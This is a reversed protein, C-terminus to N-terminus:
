ASGSSATQPERLFGELTAVDIGVDLIQDALRLPDAAGLEAWKRRLQRLTDIHVPTYGPPRSLEARLEGDATEVVIRTARVDDAEAVVVHVKERLARSDTTRELRFPDGSTWAAATAGRLDWWDGGVAGTTATAVPEAVEVLISQPEGTRSQRAGSANEFKNRLEAALAVAGQSFGNVPFLRVSTTSLVDAPSEPLGPSDPAVLSLLGRPGELVRVPAAARAGAFRAALVGTIAAAARHFATTASREAISQGVGGAMAAAHGYAAITMDADLGLLVAATAASGVTGATATAHWNRAHAPGFLLATDGAVQYGMRAARRLQTGCAGVEAGLALAVAWVISGIHTGAPWFIDDLDRSHARLALAAVRGCTGDDAFHFPRGVLAGREPAATVCALMDALLIRAADDTSEQREVVRASQAVLRELLPDPPTDETV